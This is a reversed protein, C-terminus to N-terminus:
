FPYLTQNWAMAEMACKMTAQPVWFHHETGLVSQTVDGQTIHLDVSKIGFHSTISSNLRQTLLLFLMEHTVGPMNCM